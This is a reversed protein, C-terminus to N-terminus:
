KINTMFQLYSLHCGDIPLYVFFQLVQSSHCYLFGCIHVFISSDVASDGAFSAVDASTVTHGHACEANVWCAGDM